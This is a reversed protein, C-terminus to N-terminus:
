LFRKEISNNCFGKSKGDTPRVNLINKDDTGHFKELSYDIWYSRHSFMSTSCYPAIEDIKAVKAEISSM